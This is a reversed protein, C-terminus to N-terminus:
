GGITMDQYAEIGPENFKEKLTRVLGGIVTENPLMLERRILDANTIRYKWPRRISTGAASPKPTYTVVPAQQVMAAERLADRTSEVAEAEQRALDAADQEALIAALPDDEAVNKAEAAAREQAERIEELRRQEAEARERAEAELREKEKRAREEEQRRLRDQELVYGKMPVQVAQSAEELRDTAGKFLNNIRKLGENIPGTISKREIELDKIRGKLSVLHAGAVEYQEQTTILTRPQNLIQLALGEAEQTAAKAQTEAPPTPVINATPESM